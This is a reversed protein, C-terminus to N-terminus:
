QRQARQERRRIANIELQRRIGRMQDWVSDFDKADNNYGWFHGTRATATPRTPPRSKRIQWSDIQGQVVQATITVATTILAKNAISTGILKAAGKYDGGAVLGAAQSVTAINILV